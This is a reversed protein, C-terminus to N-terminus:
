VPTPLAGRAFMEFGASMSHGAEHKMNKPETDGVQLVVIQSAAPSKRISVRM